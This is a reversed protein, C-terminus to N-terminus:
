SHSVDPHISGSYEVLTTTPMADTTVEIDGVFRGVPFDKSADGDPIILGVSLYGDGSVVTIVPTIEFEYILNGNLDRIQSRVIPNNWFNPDGARKFPFTMGEWADGRRLDFKEQAAKTM